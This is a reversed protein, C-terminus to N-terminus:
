SKIKRDIVSMYNNAGTVVSLMMRGFHFVDTKYCCSDYRYEPALMCGRSMSDNVRAMEDGIEVDIAWSMDNVRCNLNKEILVNTEKINRHIVRRIYLARLGKAIQLLMNFQTNLSM